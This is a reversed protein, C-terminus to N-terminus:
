SAFVRACCCIVPQNLWPAGMQSRLSADTTPLDVGGYRATIPSMVRAQHRLAGRACGAAIAFAHDSHEGNLFDKNSRPAILAEIEALEEGLATVRRGLARLAVKAPQEPEGSRLRTPCCLVSGLCSLTASTAGKVGDHEPVPCGQIRGVGPGGLRGILGRCNACRDVM